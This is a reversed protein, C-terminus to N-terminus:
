AGVPNSGKVKAIGNSGSNKEPRRKLQKLQYIVAFIENMKM